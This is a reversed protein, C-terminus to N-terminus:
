LLRTKSPSGRMPPGSRREQPLGRMKAIGNKLLLRSRSPINELVLDGNEQDIRLDRGTDRVIVDGEKNCVSLPTDAPVRLHLLVRLRHYPFPSPARVSVKLTGADLDTRVEADKAAADLDLEGSHYVRVKAALHVLGDSSRDVTVEGAPNEIRVQSVEPFQMDQGPFETFRTGKPRRDNAYFSFDRSFRVRGKEVAHYVLGFVVLIVVLFIEKRKM